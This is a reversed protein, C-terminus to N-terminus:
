FSPQRQCVVRRMKDLHLPMALRFYAGGLTNGHRIQDNQTSMFVPSGCFSPQAQAGSRITHTYIVEYFYVGGWM